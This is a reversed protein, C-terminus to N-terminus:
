PSKTRGNNREWVTVTWDAFSGTRPTLLGVRHYHSRFYEGIQQDFDRGFIPAGYEWFLRNSWLLYRVDKSEIEQILEATMKGPAMIGPLFMFVRTPCYTDSLFYLSTDEPVSLVSEGLAAKEKMFGIAAMYSEKMHPSVLITGRDTTLPVFSKAIYRIQHTYLGASALCALCFVAEIKWVLASTRINQRIVALILLLFCLVVPGNYYIPYEAPMMRFMIRFAQLGSFTLILPIILDRPNSSKRRWFIWWSWVAAILVYFVMDRPFVLSALATQPNLQMFKYWIALGGFLVVKMVTARADRRKWKFICYLELFFVAPFLSRILADTLSAPTISFGNGQLLKSAYNKMFFSTPWNDINEQTMFKVGRISVMWLVTAGCIVIGPLVVAIDQLIPKASKKKLSRVVILMILMLYCAMGFEPKLLLAIAAATGAALLWGWGSSAAAKIFLYLSLCAILCGYLASFSYPLPFCFLSPQFGEILMVAGATWGIPWASLQMGAVYLFVAAGLAAFSGAWYLVSLHIGFLRFLYSNFYPALPGFNFWVDRYLMKGQALLAPIYMEHGSDITLNGWAGWTSYVQWGWILFLSVLAARTIVNWRDPPGLELLSIDRNSRPTTVSDLEATAPQVAVDWRAMRLINVFLGSEVGAVQATM